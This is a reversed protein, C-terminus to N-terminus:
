CGACEDQCSMAADCDAAAEVCAVFCDAIPDGECRSAIETPSDVDSVGECLGGDGAILEGAGACDTAAASYPCGGLAGGGGTCGVVLGLTLARALQRM